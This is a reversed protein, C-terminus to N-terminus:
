AYFLEKLYADLQAFDGHPYQSIDAGAKNILCDTLLFVQKGLQKAIMDEGADNGVMMCEEPVLHLKDLIQRYYDLNPKCYSSNEYTTYLEFDEPQLGAWQIRWQTARAPFIPNTALVVRYGKEKLGHVIEAAAPHHGCVTKIKGFEEEYFEDFLHKDKIIRDGYVTTAVEWFVEENTKSGNNEVMTGTGRWITEVLKRPEYGQPALKASIRGFYEKVFTEQDMPLLTGDLDFLVTTLKM